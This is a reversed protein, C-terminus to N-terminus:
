MCRSMINVWKQPMVGTVAYRQESALFGAESYAKEFSVLACGCYKRAGATGMTASASAVCSLLFNSEVSFSYKKRNKPLCVGAVRDKGVCSVYQSKDSSASTAPVSIFTFSTAILSTLVLSIIKQM